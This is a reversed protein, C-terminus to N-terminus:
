MLRDNETYGGKKNALAIMGVIKRGEKIPVGLFSNISPHDM